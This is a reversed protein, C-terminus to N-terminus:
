PRSLLAEERRRRVARVALWGLALLLVFPAVLAVAYVAGVWLWHFAVGLGHLPGHGAEHRPTPPPTALQVQLTAYRSARVTDAKGQQLREIRRTLADIQRQARDREQPTSAEALRTRLVGLRRQLRDILRDTASVRAQLDQIQVHAGTVTGLGSIRQVAEQLHPRPVRLVLNAYGTKGAADLDVSRPYGGLIAAIRLSRSATDSVAAPTALRLALSASYQQLRKTSAGPLTPAAKSTAAGASLSGIAQDTAPATREYPVPQPMAQKGGRPLVAVAVAAAIAVPVLVLSARRWNLRRPPTAAQAAVLRVRERLEPPATVHADRLRNILDPQSM